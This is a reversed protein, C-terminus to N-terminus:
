LTAVCYILDNKMAVQVAIEAREVESCAKKVAQRWSTLISNSSGCMERFKVISLPYPHKHSEIYDALRRAVPSLNLYGSWAHSTFTNGAFLLILSPDLEITYDTPNGDVDNITTYNKILSISGSKGFAKSNLVLVECAKLRSICERAKKYYQGSKSWGVDKVLDKISLNFPQGLAVSQGYSFIQLLIIEDDAARLEIGTFLMSIASNYHFLEQHLLVKREEKKNSVTFLSSRAYDHPLHRLDGRGAIIEPFLLDLQFPSAPSIGRSKLYAHRQIKEIQTAVPQASLKKM